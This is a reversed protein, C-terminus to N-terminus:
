GIIVARSKRDVASGNYNSLNLNTSITRMVFLGDQIQDHIFHIPVALHKVQSTVTKADLVDIYPQSDKYIPTPLVSDRPMGMVIAVDQINM